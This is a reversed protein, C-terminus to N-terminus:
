NIKNQNKRGYIVYYIMAVFVSGGTLNGLIVPGLNKFLGIWTILEEPSGKESQIFIGMPIYFMNAISHEFGAAVFAAVPFIIVIVKDWVTRGAQAMWVALCVLINCLIGSFYAKEWSITCKAEAIKLYLEGVSGKNMDHHRAMFLLIAILVAGVFNSVCVVLWNKLVEGTSIKKDAWAMVILNNGTFLEAGAITVMVLGLSFVIGGILRNWGFSLNPDSTVTVFFMAGLAIFAGALIGLMIMSLLPLRAKAVGINEVKEAIEKPSFADSGFLNNKEESM